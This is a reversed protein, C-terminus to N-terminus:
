EGAFWKLRLQTSSLQLIPLHGVSMCQLVSNFKFARLTGKQTDFAIYGMTYISSTQFVKMYLSTQHGQPAPCFM